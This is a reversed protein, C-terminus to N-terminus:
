AGVAAVESSEHELGEGLRPLMQLARFWHGRICGFDMEVVERRGCERYRRREGM